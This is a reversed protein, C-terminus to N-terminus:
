SFLQHGVLIVWRWWFGKRLQQKGQIFNLLPFRLINQSEPIGTVAQGSTQNNNSSHTYGPEIAKTTTAQKLMKTIRETCGTTAHLNHTFWTYITHLDRAFRMYITHLGHTFRAYVAHLDHTFRVYIM